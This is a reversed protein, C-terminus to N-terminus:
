AEETFLHGNKGYLYPRFALDPQGDTEIGTIFGSVTKGQYKIQGPHSFFSDPCVTTLRVYRRRGDPCLAKTAHTPIQWPGFHHVQALM